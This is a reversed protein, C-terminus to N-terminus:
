VRRPLCLGVHHPIRRRRVNSKSPRTQCHPLPDNHPTQQICENPRRTHIRSKRRRIEPYRPLTLGKRSPSSPQIAVIYTQIHFRVSVTLFDLLPSEGTTVSSLSEWLAMFTSIFGTDRGKPLGSIAKQRLIEKAGLMHRKWEMGDMNSM